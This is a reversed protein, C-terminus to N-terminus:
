RAVTATLQPPSVESTAGVRHWARNRYVLGDDLAAADSTHSEVATAVFVTSGGADVRHLMRIRLWVGADHFLPEGTPLSSWRTEDQFRDIGSTAGLTALDLDDASLLHVVATDVTRLTDVSSSLMSVSFMVLPPEASVASVSSATLAVRDGNSEATILAVGAPHLRFATKFDDASIM